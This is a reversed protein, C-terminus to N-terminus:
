WQQIILCVGSADLLAFERAGWPKLAVQNSNPHLLEPYREQVSKYVGDIDDTQLRLEPRDKEAYGRDQILFAAIGDKQVICSPHPSSLDDHGIEFELCNVFLELGDKIDSYFINPVLKTFTM